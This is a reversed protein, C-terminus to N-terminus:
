PRYFQALWGDGQQHLAGSDVLEQVLDELREPKVNVSRSIAGLRSAPHRKVYDLVADRLASEPQSRRRVVVPVAQAEPEAAVPSEQASAAQRRGLGRVGPGPKMVRPRVPAPASQAAPASAAVRPAPVPSAPENAVTASDSAARARAAGARESLGTEIPPLLAPEAALRSAARARGSPATRAFARVDMGEFLPGAVGTGPDVGLAEAAAHRALERVLQRVDELFAEVVLDLRSGAPSTRTDDSM